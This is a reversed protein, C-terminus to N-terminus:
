KSCAKVCEFRVAICNARCQEHDTTPSCSRACKASDKNCTSTCETKPDSSTKAEEAPGVILIGVLMFALLIRKQMKIIGKLIELM